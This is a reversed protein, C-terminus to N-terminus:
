VTRLQDMTNAPVDWVVLLRNRYRYLRNCYGSRKTLDLERHPYEYLQSQSSDVFELETQCTLTLALALQISVFATM